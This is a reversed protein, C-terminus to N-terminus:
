SIAEIVAPAELWQMPQASGPWLVKVAPGVPAWTRPDTPGFLAVTPVGLAAALHTPGSDNGIYVAARSLHLSLEIFDPPEVVECYDRWRRSWLPDLWQREAEGLLVMAPRGIVQLHEIVADFREAPWCKHRGGSGPHIVVPGDGNVRLSPLAPEVTLGQRSLCRAHFATVHECSEHPPRSPVFAVRERGTLATVSAAWGDRGDSVFTIVREAEGLMRRVADGAECDGGSVFLRSWEASDGDLARVGAIWREALKGKSWSSVLVVPALARLLPWILM